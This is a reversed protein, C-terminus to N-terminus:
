KIHISAYWESVFRTIAAVSMTIAGYLIIKFIYLQSFKYIAGENFIKLQEDRIHPPESLIRNKHYKYIRWMDIGQIVGTVVACIIVGQMSWSFLQPGVIGAVVHMLINWVM